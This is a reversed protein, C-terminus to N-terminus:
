NNCRVPIRMIADGSPRVPGAISPMESLKSADTQGGTKVPIKALSEAAAEDGLEAALSYYSRAKSADAEIEGIGSAYIDGLWTLIPRFRDLKVSRAKAQEFLQEARRVREPWAKSSWEPASNFSLSRVLVEAYVLQAIASPPATKGEAYQRVSARQAAGLYNKADFGDPYFEDDISAQDESQFNLVPEPAAPMTCYSVFMQPDDLDMDLTSGLAYILKATAATEGLYDFSSHSFRWNAAERVFVLGAGTYEKGALLPVWAIDGVVSVEGPKLSKLALRLPDSQNAQCSATYVDALDFRGRKRLARISFFEPDVSPYEAANLQEAGQHLAIRQLRALDLLNALHLIAAPDRLVCSTEANLAGNIQNLSPADNAYVFNSGLAFLYCLLRKM